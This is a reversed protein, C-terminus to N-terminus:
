TEVVQRRLPLKGAAKPYQARELALLADRKTQECIAQSRNQREQLRAEAKKVVEKFRRLREDFIGEFNQQLDELTRKALDALAAESIEQKGDAQGDGTLSASMM